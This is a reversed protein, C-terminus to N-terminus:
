KGRTLEAYSPNLVYPSLGDYARPPGGVRDFVERIANLDQAAEARTVLARVIAQLKDTPAPLDVGHPQHLEHLLLKRILIAGTREDNRKDNKPVNDGAENSESIRQRWRELYRAANRLFIPDDNFNGLGINCKTCLLGRVTDTAHCHDICPARDFPRECIGCVGGQRAYMANFQELSLGYRKLRRGFRAAITRARFQDDTAYRERESANRQERNAHKYALAQRIKKERYEPDNAYKKKHYEHQYRRKKEKPDEDDM